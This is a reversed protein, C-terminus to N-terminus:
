TEEDRFHLILVYKKPNDTILYTLVYLVSLHTLVIYSKETIVYFFLSIPVMFLISM